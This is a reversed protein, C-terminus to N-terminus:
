GGFARTVCIVAWLLAPLLVVILSFVLGTGFLQPAVSPGSRNRRLLFVETVWGATYCFNAAIAGVFLVIPEFADEGPQLHGCLGILGLFAALSLLGVGGVILNYALRRAEWWRIISGASRPEPPDAFLWRM